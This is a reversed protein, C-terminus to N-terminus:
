GTVVVKTGVPAWNYVKQAYSWSALGVCGHSNPYGDAFEQSYHIGQGGSFAMWYPMNVGYLNSWVNVGKDYVYFTGQRTYYPGSGDSAYGGFRARGGDVIFGNVVMYLMGDSKSACLVKGMGRCASPAPSCGTLTLSAVVACILGAVVFRAKKM